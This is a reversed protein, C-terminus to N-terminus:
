GQAQQTVRVTRQLREIHGYYQLRLAEVAAIREAPTKSLWYTLDRQDQDELRVKHVVKEMHENYWM